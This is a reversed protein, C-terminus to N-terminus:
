ARRIVWVRAVRDHLTRREHDVLSWWLGLGALFTSPLRAALWGLLRGSTPRVGRADITALGLARQGLSQGRRSLRTWVFAWAVHLLALTIMSSAFRGPRAQIYDVVRDLPNWPPITPPEPDSAVIAWTALAWLGLVAALDILGALTRRWIPAVTVTM